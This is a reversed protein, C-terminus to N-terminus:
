KEGNNKLGDVILMRALTAIKLRKEDSKSKIQNYDIENLSVQIIM